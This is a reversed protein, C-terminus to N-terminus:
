IFDLIKPIFASSRITPVPTRQSDGYKKSFFYTILFTFFRETNKRPTKESLPPTKAIRM